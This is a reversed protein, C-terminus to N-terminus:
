GNKFPNGFPKGGKGILIGDRKKKGKWLIRIGRGEEDTVIVAAKQFKNLGMFTTARRSTIIKMTMFKLIHRFVNCPGISVIVPSRRRSQALCPQTKQFSVQPIMSYNLTTM